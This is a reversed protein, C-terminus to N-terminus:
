QNQQTNRVYRRFSGVNSLGFGADGEVIQCNWSRVEIPMRCAFGCVVVRDCSVRWNIPKVIFDSAGADFAKQISAADDVSTVMVVPVDRGSRRKIEGCATIGDMNPMNIDLLVLDPAFESCLEVAEAGSAACCVDFGAKALTEQMLLRIGPDDDVALVRPAAHTPAAPSESRGVTEPVRGPAFQRDPM